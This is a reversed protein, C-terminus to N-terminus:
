DDKDTFWRHVVRVRCIGGGLAEVTWEDAITPDDPETGLRGEAVFRHPPEWTTITAESDMGPGFSAVVAGGVRGDIQTPVFWSSIGPGTAIAQWVQEPTGPVEAEAQVFRNGQPDREVPM